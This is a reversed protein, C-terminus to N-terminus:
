GKKGSGLVMAVVAGGVAGMVAYVVIDVLIGTLAMMNTSGYLLFDYSAAMLGAIIAGAMAGTQWTSINAWRGFIVALLMGGAINGVIMAWFVMGDDPRMVAMGEPTSQGDMFSALVMGYILWGLLFYVVGGALGALLIKNTRM